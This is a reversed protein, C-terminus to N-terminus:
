MRFDWPNIQNQIYTYVIKFIFFFFLCNKISIKEYIIIRRVSIVYMREFFVFSKNNRMRILFVWFEDFFDIIMEIQM